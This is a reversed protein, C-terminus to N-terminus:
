LQAYLRRNITAPALRAEQMAARWALLCSNGEGARLRILAELAEGPSGAGQALSNGFQLPIHCPLQDLIPRAEETLGNSLSCAPPRGVMIRRAPAGRSASQSIPAPVMMSLSFESLM